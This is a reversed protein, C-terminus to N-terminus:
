SLTILKAGGLILHGFRYGQDGIARKVSGFLESYVEAKDVMCFLLNGNCLIM